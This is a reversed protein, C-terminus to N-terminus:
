LSDDAVHLQGFQLREDVWGGGAGNTEAIWGPERAKVEMVALRRAIAVSVHEEGAIRCVDVARDASLTHIRANLIRPVKSPFETQNRSTKGVIPQQSRVFGLAPGDALEQESVCVPQEARECPRHGPTRQGCPGSADDHRVNNWVQKLGAPKSAGSETENRLETDPISLTRGDGFSFALLVVTWARAVTKWIRLNDRVSAGRVQL